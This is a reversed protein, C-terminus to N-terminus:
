LVLYGFKAQAISFLCRAETGLPEMNDRAWSDNYRISIPEVNPVNQYDKVVKDYISPHIGVIVKEHQAIALIVERFNARAIKGDERWTDKRFPLLVVTAQHKDGEFPM